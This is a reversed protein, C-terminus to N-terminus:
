AKSIPVMRTLGDIRRRVTPERKEQPKRKKDYDKLKEKVEDSMPVVDSKKIMHVEWEHPEVAHRRGNDLATLNKIQKDTPPGWYWKGGAKVQIRERDVFVKDPFHGFRDRWSDMVGLKEACRGPKEAEGLMIHQTSTAGSLMFDDPIKVM